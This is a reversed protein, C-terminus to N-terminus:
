YLSLFNQTSISRQYVCMKGERLKKYFTPFCYPLIAFNTNKQIVLSGSTSLIQLKTQPNTMFM